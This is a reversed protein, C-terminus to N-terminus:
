VSFFRRAVRGWDSRADMAVDRRPGERQEDEYRAWAALLLKLGEAANSLRDATEDDGGERELVEVLHTHVPHETNLTVIIAGGRPKVSFFAPTDIPAEVFVFKLGDEVTRHALDHAQKPTLGVAAIEQELEEELEVKPRGEDRDSQGEHGEDQSQRTATTARVEATSGAYRRRQARENGSPQTGFLTPTQIGAQIMVTLRHPFPEGLAWRQVYLTGVVPRTGNAEERFRVTNKREREAVFVLVHWDLPAEASRRGEGRRRAESEIPTRVENAIDITVTLRNPLPTGLGWRQVYLTGVAPTGDAEEQFRVTNKTERETVFVLTRREM